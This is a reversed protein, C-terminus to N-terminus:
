VVVVRDSGGVEAEVDEEIEGEGIGTDVKGEGMEKGGEEGEAAAIEM